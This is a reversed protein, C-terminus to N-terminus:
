WEQFTRSSSLLGPFDQFKASIKSFNQFKKTTLCDLLSIELYVGANKQSERYTSDLLESVAIIKM